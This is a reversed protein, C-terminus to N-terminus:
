CRSAKCLSPYGPILRCTSFSPGWGSATNREARMPYGKRALSDCPSSHQWLNTPVRWIRQDAKLCVVAEMLNLSAGSSSHKWFTVFILFCHKLKEGKPFRMWSPFSPQSLRGSTKMLRASWCLQLLFHSIAQQAVPVVQCLTLAWACLTCDRKEMCPSGPWSSLWWGWACHGSGGGVPSGTSAMSQQWLARSVGLGLRWLLDLLSPTCWDDGTKWTDSFNLWYFDKGSLGEWVPHAWM